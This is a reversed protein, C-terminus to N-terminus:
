SQQLYITAAWCVKSQGASPLCTPQNEAQKRNYHYCVPTGPSSMAGLARLLQARATREVTCGTSRGDIDIPLLLHAFTEM